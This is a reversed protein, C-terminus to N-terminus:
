LLKNTYQSAVEYIEPADNGSVTPELKLQLLGVDINEHAMLVQEDSMNRTTLAIASAKNKLYSMTIDTDTPKTLYAVIYKKFTKGLYRDPALNMTILYPATYKATYDLADVGNGISTIAPAQITFLATLVSPSITVDVEVGVSPTQITFTITQVAPSVTYDYSVTPSQVSFTSTLVSPSITTGIGVTPAQISFTSTLVTATVNYDYSVSPAQINFTSTLVSPSVTYDYTVAPAQVGFTITQVAPSITTGTGIAPAQISFTSTLVAVTTTYDYSVAPAQVSFTASIVAPTVEVDEGGSPTYTCYISYLRTGTSQKTLTEPFVDYDQVTDGLWYSGGTSDYYQRKGNSSSVAMYYDTGKVLGECDDIALTKWAPDDVQSSSGEVTKGVYGITTSNVYDYIGIKHNSNYYSLYASLYTATGDAPSEYKGFYRLKGYSGDSAGHSEPDYGFTDNSRIPYVANNYFDEPITIEYLGNEIHLDGWVEWGKSDILRPRYIHGIKGVRYLKGGTWNTKPTKAYVAYSGVVNEPRFAGEDIEEQTLEPQYYFVVDKSQLSFQVKNTAPKAKLYWIFKFANDEQYFEAKLNGKDWKVKNDYKYFTAEGTENELLRVSYNCENDWRGIKIQPYFDPQKSDGIEVFLRDRWDDSVTRKFSSDGINVIEEAM